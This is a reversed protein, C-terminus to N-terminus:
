MFGAESLASAMEEKEIPRRGRGGFMSEADSVRDELYDGRRIGLPDYESRMGTKGFVLDSYEVMVQMLRSAVVLDSEVYDESLFVSPGIAAAVYRADISTDRILSCLEGLAERSILRLKDLEGSIKAAVAQGNAMDKIQKIIHILSKSVKPSVIRPDSGMFLSHVARAWVPPDHELCIQRLQATTLDGYTDLYGLLANYVHQVEEDDVHKALGLFLDAAMQDKHRLWCIIFPIHPVLRRTKDANIRAFASSM